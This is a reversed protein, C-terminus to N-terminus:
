ATALAQPVQRAAERGQKVCDPLGIGEYPSGVLWLWPPLSNKLAAIRELHGVEYQPNAEIWRYVRKIVPAASIGMVKELENRALEAMQEDTLLMDDPHRHGGLFVRLLGYGEPARGALKTSSWTCAVLHTPENYAVVFGFGDLPRPIDQLRYGLSVTASSVTKFNGLKEVLEPFHGALLRGAIHAPTTIIVADTEIINGQATTITGDKSISVAGENLRIEGTLKAQLAEVLEGMGNKFSSFITTPAGTKPAPPPPPANKSGLTISGYKQELALYNPYTALMSMTEPNGSYIGALMPAGFLDLAEQGYRRRM